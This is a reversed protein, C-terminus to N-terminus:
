IRFGYILNYYRTCLLFDSFMLLHNNENNMSLILVSFSQLANFIKNQFIFNFIFDM